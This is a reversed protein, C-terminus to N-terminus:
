LTKYFVKYIKRAGIGYFIEYFGKRARAIKKAKRLSNVNISLLKPM